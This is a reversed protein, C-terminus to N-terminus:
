EKVKQAFGYVSLKGSPEKISEVLLIKLGSRSIVSELSEESYLNYHIAGISNDDDACVALSEVDPVEVYVLGGANLLDLASRLFKIPNLVHELVKNLSEQHVEFRSLKRLHQAAINDPECVEIKWLPDSSEELFKAPFVGLGSGIDLLRKEVSVNNTNKENYFKLVRRVRGMNDSNELSMIRAFKDDLSEDIFDIAYYSTSITQLKTEVKHPIRRTAGGCNLCVLWVRSHMLSNAGAAIEFRDPNSIVRSISSECSLCMECTVNFTVAM